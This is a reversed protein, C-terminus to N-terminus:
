PTTQIPEERQAVPKKTPKWDEVATELFAGIGTLLAGAFLLWGLVPIVATVFLVLTGILLASLDNREHRHGLAMVRQGVECSMAALGSLAVVLLTVMIALAIIPGIVEDMLRFLAAVLVCNIAFVVGWVFCRRMGQRAAQRERRVFGPAAASILVMAGLSSIMIFLYTMVRLFSEGVQEWGGM